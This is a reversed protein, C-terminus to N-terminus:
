KRIYKKGDRIYMSGMSIYKINDYKRGLIDYIYFHSATNISPTMENISTTPPIVYLPTISTDITAPVTFSPWIVVLNDGAQQYLQAGGNLPANLDDIFLSDGPAFVGQPISQTFTLIQWNQSPGNVPTIVINATIATDVIPTNGTNVFLIELFFPAAYQVTDAHWVGEVSVVQSLSLCQNQVDLISNCNTNNAYITSPGYAQDIYECINDLECYSLSDNDKLILNSIQNPIISDLGLLSQLSINDDIEIYGDVTLVSSLGILNNLMPNDSIELNGIFKLNNFGNLNTLSTEEIYLGGILSDIDDFGVINVLNDCEVIRVQNVSNLNAIGNTSILDGCELLSLSGGIHSLNTLGYLDTLIDHPEDISVSGGVYKLASLGAFSTIECEDCTVNGSISDLQTLGPYNTLDGGDYPLRLTSPLNTCNPYNIVFQAIDSCNYYSPIGITPCNQGFGIMPLCLLLLLGKQM